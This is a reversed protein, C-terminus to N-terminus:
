SDKRSIRAYIAYPLAWLPSTVLIILAGACGLTLRLVDACTEIVEKWFDIVAPVTRSWMWASDKIVKM